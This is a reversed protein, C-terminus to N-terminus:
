ELGAGLLLVTMLGLNAFINTYNGFTGILHSPVTEGLMRPAATMFVGTCLGHILRGTIILYVNEFLTIITAIIGIFGFIILWKRRGQSM